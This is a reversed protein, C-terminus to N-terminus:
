KAKFDKVKITTKEGGPGVAINQDDIIVDTKKKLLKSPDKEVKKKLVLDDVEKLIQKTTEQGIKSGLIRNLVM